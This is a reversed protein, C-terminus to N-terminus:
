RRLASQEARQILAEEDKREDGAKGLASPPIEVPKLVLRAKPSPQIGLLRHVGEFVLDFPFFTRPAPLPVSVLHHAPLYAKAGQPPLSAYVDIMGYYPTPFRYPTRAMPLGDIHVLAQDPESELEVEM